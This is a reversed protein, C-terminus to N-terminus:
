NRKKTKTKKTHPPETIHDWLQTTFVVGTPTREYVTDEYVTDQYAAETEHTAHRQLQERVLFCQGLFPHARLGLQGLQDLCPRPWAGVVGGDNRVPRDTPVVNAINYSLTFPLVHRYQSHQEAVGPVSGAM